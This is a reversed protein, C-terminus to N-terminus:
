AFVNTIEALSFNTLSSTTMSGTGKAALDGQLGGLLDDWLEMQPVELEENTTDATAITGIAIGGSDEPEVAQATQTPNEPFPDCKQPSSGSSTSSANCSFGESNDEVASAVETPHTAISSPRNKHTHCSSQQSSALATHHAAHSGDPAKDFENRGARALATVAPDKVPADLFRLTAIAMVPPVAGSNIRRTLAQCWGRLRETTGRFGGHSAFPADGFHKAYGDPRLWEKFSDHLGERLHVLRRRCSWEARGFEVLPRWIACELVYWTHGDVEEHGTVAIELMPQSNAKVQELHRDSWTDASTAELGFIALYQCMDMVARDAAELGFTGQYQRLNMAARAATVAASARVDMSKSTYNATAHSRGSRESFGANAAATSVSTTM